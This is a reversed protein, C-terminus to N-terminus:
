ATSVGAMGSLKTLGASASSFVAAQAEASLVSRGLNTHVVVGTANIVKKLHPALHSRLFRCLKPLHEALALESPETLEGARIRARQQDWYAAILSRLSERPSSSFSQDYASLRQKTEDVGPIARFLSTQDM